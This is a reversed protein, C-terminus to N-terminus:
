LLLLLLPVIILQAATTVLWASNTSDLDFRYLVPPVLAVFGTPMLSAVVVVRLAVGGAANGLGALLAASVLVVPVVIFKTTAVPAVVRISSRVAAVNLSLGIAFALLGTLLPVLVTMVGATWLPIAVGSLRLLTGLVIGSLPVLALPREFFARWDFRFRRIDGHAIQNSLPFGFAYYLFEEFLRYLQLLSYGTTGFQVFVILGGFLGINSFSSAVFASAVQQPALRAGRALLIGSAGGVVVGMAGIAPLVLLRGSSMDLQWFSITVAIPQLVLLCVLKLATSLRDVMPMHENGGRAVASRIVWGAFLSVFAFLLVTLLREM